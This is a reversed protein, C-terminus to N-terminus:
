VIFQLVANHDLLCLAYEYQSLAVSMYNFISSRDYHKSNLKIGM